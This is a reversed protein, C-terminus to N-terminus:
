ELTALWDPSGKHSRGQIQGWSDCRKINWGRSMSFMVNEQYIVRLFPCFTYLHCKRAWGSHSLFEADTLLFLICLALLFKLMKPLSLDMQGPSNHLWRALFDGKDPFIFLYIIESSPFSSYQLVYRVIMGMPFSPILKLLISYLSMLRGYRVIGM